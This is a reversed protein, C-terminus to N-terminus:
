LMAYPTCLGMGKGEGARGWYWLLHRYQALIKNYVSWLRLKNVCVYRCNLLLIIVNRLTKILRRRCRTTLLITGSIVDIIIIHGNPLLRGSRGAVYYNVSSSLVPWLVPWQCRAWTDACFVISYLVYVCGFVCVCLRCLVFIWEGNCIVCDCLVIRTNPADPDPKAREQTHWRKEIADM